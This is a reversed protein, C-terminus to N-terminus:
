AGDESEDTDVIDHLRKEIKKIEEVSIEVDIEDDLQDVFNAIDESISELDIRKAVGVNSDCM